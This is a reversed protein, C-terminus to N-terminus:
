LQSTFQEAFSALDQFPQLEAAFVIQLEDTIEATKPNALQKFTPMNKGTKYWGINAATSPNKVM